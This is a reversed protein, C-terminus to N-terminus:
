LRAPTHTHKVPTVANEGKGRPARHPPPLLGGIAKEYDAMQITGDSGATIKLIDEVQAEKLKTGAAASMLPQLEKGSIHGNGDVDMARFARKNFEEPSCKAVVPGLAALFLDLTIVTGPADSDTIESLIEGLTMEDLQRGILKEILYKLEKLELQGSGNKDLMSFVNKLGEEQEPSLQPEAM